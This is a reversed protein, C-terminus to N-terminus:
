WSNHRSSAAEPGPVNPSSSLVPARDTSRRQLSAQNAVALRRSSPSTLARYGRRFRPRTGTRQYAPVNVSSPRRSRTGTDRPQGGSTM